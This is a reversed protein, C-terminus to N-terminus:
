GEHINMHRIFSYKQVFDKPCFHCKFRREGTHIRVHSDRSEKRTFTKGCYNCKYPREGTHTRQHRQMSSKFAAVYGCVSCRLMPVESEPDLLPPRDPSCSKDVSDESLQNTPQLSPCAVNVPKAARRMGWFALLLRSGSASKITTSSPIVHGTELRILALTSFSCACRSNM